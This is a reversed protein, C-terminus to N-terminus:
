CLRVPPVCHGHSCENTCVQDNEREGDAGGAGVPGHGSVIRGAGVARTLGERAREGVAPGLEEVLLDGAGLDDDGSAPGQDARKVAHTELLSPRDARHVDDQEGRARVAVAPCRQGDLAGDGTVSGVGELVGDNPIDALVRRDALGEEGEVDLGALLGERRGEGVVGAALARGRRGADRGNKPRPGRSMRGAGWRLWRGGDARRRGGSRSAPM